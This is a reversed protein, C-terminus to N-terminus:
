TRSRRTGSRSRTREFRGARAPVVRPDLQADACIAPLQWGTADRAKRAISSRTPMRSCSKPGAGIARGESVAVGVSVSLRGAKGETHPIGLARVALRIAEAKAIAGELSTDPLLAAFEEGGTRAFYDGARLLKKSAAQAVRRLAADGALHGRRDNYAKFRDIDVVALAVPLGRRKARQWERACALDDFSRRNAVGTIVDTQASEALFRAALDM